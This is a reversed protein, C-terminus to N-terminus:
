QKAYVVKGNKIIEDRVFYNYSAMQNFEDPTYVLLDLPFHHSILASAEGIRQYFKKNTKKIIALDIDSWEHLRGSVLSGFLIIKEPQYDKVLIKVIRDLEKKLQKQRQSIKQKVM